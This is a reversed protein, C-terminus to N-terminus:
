RIRVPPRKDDIRREQVRKDGGDRRKEGRRAHGDERM